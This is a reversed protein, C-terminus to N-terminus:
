CPPRAAVKYRSQRATRCPARPLRVQLSKSVRSMRFGDLELAPCWRVRCVGLPTRLLLSIHAVLTLVATKIHPHKETCLSTM